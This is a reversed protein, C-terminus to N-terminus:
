GAIVKRLWREVKYVLAGVFQAFLGVLVGILSVVWVTELWLTCLVIAVIAGMLGRPLTLQAPVGLVFNSRVQLKLAVGKLQTSVVVYPTKAGDPETCLYSLELVQGRNFVPVLYERSHHYIDMQRESPTGGPTVVLTAAFEPAWKIVYPTNVVATLESLMITNGAPYVKLPVNEFDRTSANEIEVSVLYLNRVNQDHWLVRVTGFVLDDAALAVREVRTSYRFVATKAHIKTVIVTILAGALLSLISVALTNSFLDTVNM